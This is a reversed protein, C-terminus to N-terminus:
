GACEVQEMEARRYIISLSLQPEQMPSQWMWWLGSATKGPMRFADVLNGYSAGETDRSCKLPQLQAGENVIAQEVMERTLFFGGGGGQEVLMSDILLSVGALGAQTGRLNIWVPLAVTDGILATFKGARTHTLGQNRLWQENTAVPGASEWRIPLESGTSWPLARTRVGSDVLFAGLVTSLRVPQPQQASVVPAIALLVLTALRWSPRPRSM